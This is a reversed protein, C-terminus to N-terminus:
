AASSRSRGSCRCPWSRATARRRPAASASPSEYAGAVAIDPIQVPERTVAARGAVGEGRASRRARAIPDLVAAEELGRLPERPAPVARGGRRVRLDLLRRDGRAPERAHRDHRLVTDLDLTSSVARGVEGLATLQEVSRTLEATRARATGHVAPRERHRHGGPQRVDQPARDARGFLARARAGSSTSSAWRSVRACCRRRWWPGSATGAGRAPCLQRYSRRPLGSTRSTSRGHDRVGTRRRHRSKGSHHRRDGPLQAATWAAGGPAPAGELRM